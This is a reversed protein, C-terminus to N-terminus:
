AASIGGGKGEARLYVKCVWAGARCSSFAGTSGNTLDARRMSCRWSIALECFRRACDATPPVTPAGGPATSFDGEATETAGLSGARVVDECGSRGSRAVTSSALCTQGSPIRRKMCGLCLHTHTHQPSSPARPPPSHTAEQLLPLPSPPPSPPYNVKHGRQTFTSPFPPPPPSGSAGCCSCDALLRM